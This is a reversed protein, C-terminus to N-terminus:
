VCYYILLLAATFCYYLLPVADGIHRLERGQLLMKHPAAQQGKHSAGAAGSADILEAAQTHSIYLLTTLLTTTTTALALQVLLM